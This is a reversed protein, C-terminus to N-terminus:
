HWDGHSPSTGKGLHTLQRRNEGNADMVFLQDVPSGNPLSGRLHYVIHEGDPSWGNAFADLRGGEYHTLQVVNKGHADMTYLNADQGPRPPNHSNFLIRTGDPSWRPNNANLERPTLAIPVGGVDRVKMIQSETASFSEVFAIWAGTPSWDAGGDLIYAYAARTLAYPFSGDSQAIEIGQQHVPINSADFTYAIQKGDPSWAPAGNFLGTVLPLRKLGSGDPRITFVSIVHGPTRGYDSDFLILKGDPSWRPGEVGPVSSRKVDLHTIQNLGAGDPAITFLQYLGHVKAQFVIRQSSGSGSGRVVLVAALVGAAVILGGASLWIRRKLAALTESDGPASM